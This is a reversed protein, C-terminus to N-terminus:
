RNALQLQGAQAEGGIGVMATHIAAVAPLCLVRALDVTLDREGM